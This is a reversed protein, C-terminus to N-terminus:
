GEVGIMPLSVDRDTQEERKSGKDGEERLGLMRRQFGAGPIQLPSSPRARDGEGLLTESGCFCLNPSLEQVQKRSFRNVFSKISEEIIVEIM